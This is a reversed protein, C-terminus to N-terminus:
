YFQSAAVTVHTLTLKVLAAAPVHIGAWLTVAGLNNVAASTGPTALITYTSGADVSLEIPAGSRSPAPM